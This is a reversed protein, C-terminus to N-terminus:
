RIPKLDNVDDTIFPDFYKDWYQLVAAQGTMDAASQFLAARELNNFNKSRLQYEVTIAEYKKVFSVSDVYTIALGASCLFLVVASIAIALTLSGSISNVFRVFRPYSDGIRKDVRRDFQNTQWRSLTFLLMAIPIVVVPIIITLWGIM